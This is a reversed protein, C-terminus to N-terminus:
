DEKLDLRRKAHGSRLGDPRVACVRVPGVLGSAIMQAVDPAQRDLGARVAALQAGTVTDAVVRVVLGDDDSAEFPRGPFVEAMIQTLDHNSIREGHKFDGALRGDVREFAFVERGDHRIRRLGTVADGTVYRVAPFYGRTFSTLLLAGSGEQRSPVRDPETAAALEAPDAVEPVIHDHVHYLGTEACSYAIAGIEISGFVDLVDGPGLGFREAVHARWAPPAVDGVVMVKRPRIDLAPDAQFLRDLIMPMTFFVDPRVSNLKEVHEAVPRTFDIDHARFGLEDFVRRASAAAHGTGLDAVAVAGPPMSATFDAFLSRRQAVYADDDAPSYLIRKRQGGSTGSTHYASADPLHPHDATYYHAGLLATGIPPLDGLDGSGLAGRRLLLERYWPFRQAHGAALAALEAERAAGGARPATATPYPM